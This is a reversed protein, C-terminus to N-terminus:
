GKVAKEFENILSEIFGPKKAQSPSKAPPQLPMKPTPKKMQRKAIQEAELTLSQIKKQRTSKSVGGYTTVIDVSDDKLAARIEQQSAAKQECGPKAEKVKCFAALPCGACKIAAEGIMPTSISVNKLMEKNKM